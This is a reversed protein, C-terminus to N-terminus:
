WRDGSKVGTYTDKSEFRTDLFMARCDLYNGERDCPTCPGLGISITKYGFEVVDYGCQRGDSSRHCHQCVFM